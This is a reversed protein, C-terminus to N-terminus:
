PNLNFNLGLSLNNFGQFTYDLNIAFWNIDVKAGASVRLGSVSDQVDFPDEFTLTENQTTIIYTGLIDYESKGTVYGIGGYLNFVEKKTSLILEYLWTNMYGDVRQGTGSVVNGRTIDYNADLRTFAVLASLALPLNQLRRISQSLEHKLGFGVVGLSADDINLKPFYRFSFESALPLGIGAQLFATPLLNLNLLGLGTPAEFQFEEDNVTAVLTVSSNTSGLITPLAINEGGGLVELNEISGINVNKNLRESPVFSGNAILSLEVRWKEKVEATHYWGGTLGYMVGDSLPGLYLETLEEAGEIGLLLYNKFDLDQSQLGVSLLLLGLTFRKKTHM